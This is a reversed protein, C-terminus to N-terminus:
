LTCDLGTVATFVARLNDCYVGDKTTIVKYKMGRIKGFEITYDDAATLTVKVFNIGGTAFNSPLNFRLAPGDSMLNKAGTMALFRRGGLQALITEAVQKTDNATM